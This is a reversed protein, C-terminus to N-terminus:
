QSRLKKLMEAANTNEPDLALSRRYSRIALERQGDAMYAEGLSDHPNSAKPYMEVNLKFLQIAGKVDKSRLLLYGLSNLLNEHFYEAPYTKRLERYEAVAAAAGKSELTKELRRSVSPFVVRRISSVVLQPNDRHIYHGSNPDVVMLGEPSAYVFPGYEEVVSKPWIPGAEHKGAVLLAIPVDPMKMFRRLMKLDDEELFRMEAKGGEPAREYFEKAWKEDEAKEAEGIVEFIRANIPDIFVLGAVDSPFLHAFARIHANGLSHGVLVYPGPVKAARLMSHMDRAVNEFTRPTAPADSRGYGARHYQIVRTYKAIEPFIGQWTNIPGGLGYDLVVTPGGKGASEMWLRSGGIDVLRGDTKSVPENQASVFAAAAMLVVFLLNVGKRLFKNM